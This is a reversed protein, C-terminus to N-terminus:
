DASSQSEDAKVNGCSQRQDEGEEQSTGRGWSLEGRNNQYSRRRHEHLNLLARLETERGWEMERGMTLEGTHPAESAVERGGHHQSQPGLELREGSGLVWM